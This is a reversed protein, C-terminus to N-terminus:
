FIREPVYIVDGEILLVDADANGSKGIESFDVSVRTQMGLADKRTVRIDSTKASLAFGEALQIAVSLNIGEPSSLPVRGPQNVRGLVTVFGWEGGELDGVLKLMVVPPSVYYVGYSKAIAGRAEPVMMGGVIVDGVLPLTVMGRGNIESPFASVEMLGDVEVSVEVSDGVALDRIQSTNNQQSLMFSNTASSGSGTTTCGAMLLMFTSCFIFQRIWQFM